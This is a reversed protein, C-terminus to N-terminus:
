TICSFDLDKLEVLEKSEYSQAAITAQQIARRYPRSKKKRDFRLKFDELFQYLDSCQIHSMTSSGFWAVQAVQRIVVGNDKQSVNISMVRGPWWPFGKVKGWVIDEVQFTRGEPTCCKEVSNTHIKMMLPKLSDNNDDGPPGDGYESSDADSSSDAGASGAESRDSVSKTEESLVSTLHKNIEKDTNSEVSKSRQRLQYEKCAGSKDTVHCGNQEQLSTGDLNQIQSSHDNSSLPLNEDGSNSYSDSGSIAKNHHITYVLRPRKSKGDDEGKEEESDVNETIIINQTIEFDNKDAKNKHRIKKSKRDANVNLRKKKMEIAEQKKRMLSPKFNFIVEEDVEESDEDVPSKIHTINDELEPSLEGKGPKHLRPPINMVNTEGISIKIFPSTKSLKPPENMVKVLKAPKPINDAEKQRKRIHKSESKGASTKSINHPLATGHRLNQSQSHSAVAASLPIPGKKSDLCASKCNSCLTQRPRLRIRTPKNGGIRPFPGNPLSSFENKVPSNHQFYTHRFVSAPVDIPKIDREIEGCDTETSEDKMSAQGTLGFPSCIGPPINRKNADLLIGRFIQKDHELMVVLIDNVVEEIIIALQMGKEIHGSKKKNDAM